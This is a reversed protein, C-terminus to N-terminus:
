SSSQAPSGGSAASGKKFFLARRSGLRDIQEAIQPAERLFELVSEPTCPKNFTWSIVLAALVKLKEEQLVQAAKERDDLLTVDLLRRRSEADARKFADSDISRIRLKHETPTGDPLALPLEIGENAAQRTFFQEIPVETTVNPNSM